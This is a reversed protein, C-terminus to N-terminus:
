RCGPRLRLDIRNLRGIRGLSWQATAIDMIGLPEPYIADSLVGIVQLSSRAGAVIIPLADGRQLQLQQAAARSLMISDRAFLGTVDAGM